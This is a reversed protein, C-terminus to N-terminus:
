LKAKRKAERSLHKLNKEMSRVRSGLAWHWGDTFRHAGKAMIGATVRPNLIDKTKDIFYGPINSHKKIWAPPAGGCMAIAANWASKMRGVRAWLKKLYQTWQQRDLTAVRMNGAVGRSDIGRRHLGPDFNQVQWGPRVAGMAASMALYDRKRVADALKPNRWGVDPLPVVTRSLNAVVAKKGIARDGKAKTKANVMPPTRKQALLAFLKMERKLVTPTDQRFEHVFRNLAALARSTDVKVTPTM